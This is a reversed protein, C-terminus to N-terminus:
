NGNITRIEHSLYYGMKISLKKWRSDQNNNFAKLVEKDFYNKYDGIVGKRYFDDSNELGPIRGTITSFSNKDIVKRLRSSNVRYNLQNLLNILVTETSIVLDEYKIQIAYSSEYWENLLSFLENADNILTIIKEKQTLNSFETGKRGAFKPELNTLYYSQSVLVDRPDRYISIFCINRYNQVISDPLPHSHSKFVFNGQLNNLYKLTEINDINITGGPRIFSEPIFTKQAIFIDKVLNYLWSSGVKFSSAIIIIRKKNLILRTFVYLIISRNRVIDSINM